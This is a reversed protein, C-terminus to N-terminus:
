LHEQDQPVMGLRVLDALSVAVQNSGRRAARRRDKDFFLLVQRQRDLRCIKVGEAYVFGQADVQLTIANDAQKQTLPPM